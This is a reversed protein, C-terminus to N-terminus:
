QQATAPPQPRFPWEPSGQPDSMSPSKGLGFDAPRLNKSSWYDKAKIFGYFSPYFPDVFQVDARQPVELGTLYYAGNVILRRLDESLFDVSAGATTCFSRGKKKQDPSTYGHLWALPHPPNNKAGSIPKSAPDLSETVIARMLITDEATLHIVGYVDSPAFVDSVGRLIPHDAHAAEVLGRTGQRKHAGHHNVWEEGLIKRGFQQFSLTDSFRGDGRFAHTATRLGIVPKGADLYNTVHQAQEASPQRFRTGIIMLDASELAELGRLGQQNNPDIYKAGDPGFSFLVTCKFGHRRSLIKALMPM